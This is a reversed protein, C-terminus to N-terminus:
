IEDIKLLFVVIERDNLSQSEARVSDQQMIENRRRRSLHTAVSCLHQQQQVLKGRPHCSFPFLSLSPRLAPQCFLHSPNIFAAYSLHSFSALCYSAPESHSRLTLSLSLPFHQTSFVGRFLVSFIRCCVCVDGIQTPVQARIPCQVYTTACDRRNM